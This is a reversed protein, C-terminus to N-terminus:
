TRRREFYRRPEWPRRPLPSEGRDAPHLEAEQRIAIRRVHEPSVRGMDPREPWSLVYAVLASGIILLAAVLLKIAIATM